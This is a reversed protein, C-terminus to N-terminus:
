EDSLAKRKEERRYRKTTDAVKTRGRGHAYYDALEKASMKSKKHKVKVTVTTKNM